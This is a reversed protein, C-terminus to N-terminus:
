ELGKMIVHIVFLQHILFHHPNNRVYGPASYEPNLVLQAAHPTHVPRLLGYVAHFLADQPYQEVNERLRDLMQDTVKSELELFLCIGLAQLHKEYDKTVKAYVPPLFREIKDGLMRSLLSILNPRLVVRSAMFPFPQGIIWSNSKSVNYFRDSASIDQTVQWAHLLGTIMDNSITSKSGQDGDTETWCSPSPRRHWIGPEYEALSLDITTVGGAVALGNWLLGDCDEPDIWGDQTQEELEAILAEQKEQLLMLLDPQSSTKKKHWHGCSTLIMFLALINVVKM